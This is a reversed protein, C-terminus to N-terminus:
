EEETLARLLTVIQPDEKTGKGDVRIRGAQLLGGYIAWWTKTDYNDGRMAAYLGKKGNYPMRWGAQRQLIQCLKIQAAALKSNAGRVDLYKKVALEYETLAIGRRVAEATIEDLGMDVAIARAWKEARQSPRNGLSKISDHLLQAGELTMRITGKNVARDLLQRTQMKLNPYIDVVVQPRLEQLHEPELLFFFRDDMGEAGYAFTSWLDHFNKPTTCAILSATYSNPELSFQKAKEKTSNQFKGQEYLSLLHSKMSSSEIGAKDALLKFEDFFLVGNKCNTKYMELGFGETSGITWVLSRGEATKTDRGAHALCGIYSLYEMVDEVSSSKITQGKTGILILFIGSRDSRMEVKFKGGLYNLLLAMAPVWMFEPYRSNQDCVPKVLNQYISTGEMVWRPFKPYPIITVEDQEAVPAADPKQNLVIDAPKGEDYKEFSRAVQKIKENDLPQACNKHALELLNAELLEGGFGMSRLRGAQIVLWSHIEGHQILNNSDRPTETKNSARSKNRQADFWQVLWDPIFAPEAKQAGVLEYDSNTDDRHSLPGVVIQNNARLSWPGYRQPVNGLKISAESHRYYLHGRGARSRVMLTPVETVLDHGTDAKIQDFVSLDDVEFFLFGRDKAQAVAGTNCNAYEPGLADVQELSTIVHQQWADFFPRKSGPLVATVPIGCDLLLRARRKFPTESEAKRQVEREVSQQATGADLAVTEEAVVVIETQVPEPQAEAVVPESQQSNREAIFDTVSQISKKMDEFGLFGFNKTMYINMEGKRDAPLSEYHVAAAELAQQQEPTRM